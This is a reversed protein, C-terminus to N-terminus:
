AGHKEQVRTLFDMTGEPRTVATQLVRFAMDLRETESLSPDQLHQSILGVAEEVLTDVPRDEQPELHANPASNSLHDKISLLNCATSVVDKVVGGSSTLMEMILPAAATLGIIAQLVVLATAGDIFSAGPAQADTFLEARKEGGALYAELILPALDVEDSAVDLAMRESWEVLAPSLPKSM